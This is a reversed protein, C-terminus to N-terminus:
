APLVAELMASAHLSPPVILGYVACVVFSVATSLGLSWCIVKLNLM